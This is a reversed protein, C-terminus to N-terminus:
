LIVLGSLFESPSSSALPAYVMSKRGTENPIPNATFDQRPGRLRARSPRMVASDRSPVPLRKV